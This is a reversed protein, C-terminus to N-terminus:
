WIDLFQLCLLPVCHCKTHTVFKSHCGALEEACSWGYRAREGCGGEIAGFGGSVVVGDEGFKGVDSGASDETGGGRVGAWLGHLGTDVASEFDNLEGQCCGVAEVM